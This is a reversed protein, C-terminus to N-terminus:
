KVPLSYQPTLMQKGDLNVLVLRYYIIASSVAIGAELHHSRSPFTSIDLTKSKGTMPDTVLIKSKVYLKTKFDVSLVSEKVYVTSETIAETAQIATTKNGTKIQSTLIAASLILLLSLVMAIAPSPLTRHLIKFYELIINQSKKFLLLDEPYVFIGRCKECRFLDAERTLEKDRLLQMQSQDIPCLKKEPYVYDMKRDHALKQASRETIRNIGDVAFFSCGCNGCHLVKQRNLIEEVFLGHCNPCHM